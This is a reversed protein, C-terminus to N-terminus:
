LGHSHLAVSVVSHNVSESKMSGWFFKLLEGGLCINLLFYKNVLFANVLRIVCNMVAGFLLSALFRTVNSHTLQPRTVRRNGYLMLLQLCYPHIERFTPCFNGSM